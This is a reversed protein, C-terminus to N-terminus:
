ISYLLSFSGFDDKSIDFANKYSKRSRKRRELCAKGAFIMVDHVHFLLFFFLM